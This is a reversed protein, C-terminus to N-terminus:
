PEQKLVQLFQAPRVIRIGRFTGLALLHPDGTVIYDAEGDVGCALIPNDEPDEEIETVSTTVQVVEAVQQIAELYRERKSATVQARYKKQIHPRALVDAIEDLIFQSVLPAFKGEEGQSFIQACNGEPKIAASVFVNTDLVARIM